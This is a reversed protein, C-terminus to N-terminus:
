PATPQDPIPQHMMQTLPTPPLINKMPNNAQEAAARQAEIAIIQAEPTLRNPDAQTNANGAPAGFGGGNGINNINGADPSTNASPMASPGGGFGPPRAGGFGGFMGPRAGFRGFRGPPMGPAPNGPTAAAGGGSPGTAVGPQLPIEQTVGHNNFIVTGAKGANIDIKVVEIEDQSQGLALMYSQEKPPPNPAPQGPPTVPLVKFLVQAQGFITMIGNPTIKPPPNEVTPDPPPPPPPPPVLGFVNRVVVSAYPNDPLTNGPIASADDARVRDAWPAVLTLGLSLGLALTLASNRKLELRQQMGTNYMTLSHFVLPRKQNRVAPSLGAGHVPDACPNPATGDM